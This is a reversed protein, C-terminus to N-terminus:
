SEKLTIYEDGTEADKELVWRNETPSDVPAYVDWFAKRLGFNSADVAAIRTPRQGTNKFKAIAFERENLGEVDALELDESLEKFDLAEYNQNVGNIKSESM